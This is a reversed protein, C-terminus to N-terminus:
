KNGLMKVLEVVIQFGFHLRGCADISQMVGVQFALYLLYLRHAFASSVHTLRSKVLSPVVSPRRQHPMQRCLCDRKKGWQMPKQSFKKPWENTRALLTPRQSHDIKGADANTAARRDAKRSRDHHHQREDRAVRVIGFVAM